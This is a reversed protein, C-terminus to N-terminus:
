QPSGGLAGFFNSFTGIGALTFGINFRRDQQVPARSGLRSLDFNQFEMTVGCCQANYYVVLRQQLFSKDSVDLTFSYIGGVNNNLTHMVTTANLFNDLYAPDDFGRLGEIFRRQSWGGRLKLWGGHDVSGDLAMTRFAMFQTDFEARFTADAQQTPQARAILAVPTYHSPPTGQFSTRFYRDFQASREDTYYTQTLSVTLIERSIPAAGGEYQKAYLRNALEYTLQTANGVISDVSELQVIQDFEEIPTVRGITVSPEIVHKFREAYTSNPTDWIKVFVPGTVTTQLDFYRRTIGQQIRDGTEADLSETWYTNRWGVTSNVTLFPWRTFALRLRPNFDFRSLSDDSVRTGDQSRRLITTYEAGLSAYVFRGLIPSEARTFTLRPIGGVLTSSTGGFFVESRDVTASVANTGWSGTMNAGFVRQRRSAEYINTHYLQQVTVDSFYDVNARVRIADGVGQTASGRLEYSRRGPQTDGTGLLTERENLFYMTARGQSGPSSVYRYQAGMGQGTKSFWDHMVTLDQSRDVAVFFANSFTQGRISSMGYAPILFGTTRDDEEMPYYFIPMYFLPVGKVRLVANRLLAHQGLSLTVSTAVIEWRPTPQVCTTFAGKQLRYKKPGLKDIREGYFYVDPEQTGFMSRDIEEERLTASGAANFFTGTKNLTDFEVRDAGIRHGDGTFVVNGIAVLRNTDTFFDMQEAYFKFETCDVEVAGTRRYHNAGVREFTYSFQTSTNCGAVDQASSTLPFALLSSFACALALYVRVMCSQNPALLPALLPLDRLVSPYWPRLRPGVFPYQEPFM